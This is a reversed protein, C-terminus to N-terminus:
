TRLALRALHLKGGGTEIEAEVELSFDVPDSLLEASIHLRLCHDLQDSQSLVTIDLSSPLLRPEYSLLTERICRIVEESALAATSRDSLDVLGYNVISRRVHPTDDLPVSSELNVTNLLVQLDHRLHSRLMEENIGHRRAVRFSGPAVEEGSTELHVGDAHAARFLHMLSLKSKPGPRPQPGGRDNRGDVNM